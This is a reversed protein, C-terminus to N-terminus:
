LLSIQQAEEREGEKLIGASGDICGILSDLIGLNPQVHLARVLPNALSCRPKM